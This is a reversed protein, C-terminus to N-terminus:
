NMNTGCDVNITQGTIGSAEPRCLMLATTAVEDQTAMRGLSSGSVFGARVKEVPQGLTAARAEIVRDIRDGQIAGPCICNCRIGETGWERAWTQTLGILGWKAAAYPSRMAYGIRGAASSINLVVGAGAALMTPLAAKTCLWPGTLDIDIVEQWEEISMDLTSKTVGAIGANNVLIDLRGYASSTESVMRECDDMKAVDATIALATGGAATVLSVTEALTAATRGTVVVTAGEAAFTLAIRQGIGQGGGTIIAVQNDLAGM